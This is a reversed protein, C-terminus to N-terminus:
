FRQYKAAFKTKPVMKHHFSIFLTKTDTITNALKPKLRNWDYVIIHHAYDEGRTWIHNVSRGYDPLLPDITGRAGEAGVPMSSM